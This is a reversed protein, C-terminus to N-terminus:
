ILENHVQGNPTMITEIMIGILLMIVALGGIIAGVDLNNKQIFTIITQIVTPIVIMLQQTATISLMVVAVLIINKKM